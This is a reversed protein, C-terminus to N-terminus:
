EEQEEATFHVGEPVIPVEVSPDFSFAWLTPEGHEDKEACCWAKVAPCTDLFRQNSATAKARGIQLGGSTDLKMETDTQYQEKNVIAYSKRAKAANKLLESKLEAELEAVNDGNTSYPIVVKATGYEVFQEHIKQRLARAEKELAVAKAHDEKAQRIVDETDPTVAIMRVGYTSTTEASAFRLDRQSAHVGKLKDISLEGNNLLLVDLDIAKRKKRLSKFTEDVAIQVEDYTARTFEMDELVAKFQGNRQLTLTAGKYTGLEISKEM